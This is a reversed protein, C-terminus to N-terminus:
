EGPWLSVSRDRGPMRIGLLREPGLVVDEELLGNLFLVYATLAYVEDNTLSKPATHPMARRIHDFISTAHPWQAGVSMVLLPHKQIRLIRLPDSPSFFGDSGALRAAPGETGTEGHCAGCRSRYLAAGEPVSGQGPPLNRGDPFVTISLARLEAEAVPRGLDAAVEGGLAPPTLAILGALLAGVRGVLRPTSM